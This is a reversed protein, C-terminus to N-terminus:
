GRDDGRRRHPRRMLALAAAAALAVAWGSRPRYLVVALAGGGILVTRWRLETFAPFALWVAGIVAASRATVGAGAPSDGLWFVVAAVALVLTAVGLLLRTSRAAAADVVRREGM